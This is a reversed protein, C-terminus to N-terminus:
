GGELIIIPSQQKHTLLFQNTITKPTPSYFSISSYDLPRYIILWLMPVGQGKQYSLHRPWSVPVRSTRPAWDWRGSALAWNFCVCLETHVSNVSGLLTSLVLCKGNPWGSVKPPLLGSHRLGKRGLWGRPNHVRLWVLWVCVLFLIYM